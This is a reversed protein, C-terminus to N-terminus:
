KLNLKNVYLLVCITKPFKNDFFNRAEQELGKKPNNHLLFNSM